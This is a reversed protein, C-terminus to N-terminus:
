AEVAVRIGLSELIAVADKKGYGSSWDEVDPKKIRLMGGRTAKPDFEEPVIAAFKEVVSMDEYGDIHPVKSWYRVVLPRRNQFKVVLYPITQAAQCAVLQELDEENIYLTPSLIPGKLELAHNTGHSTTVLVDPQPHKSNGSHGCRYTRVAGETVSYMENAITNEWKKSM